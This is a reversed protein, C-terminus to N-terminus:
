FLEFNKKIMLYNKEIITNLALISYFKNKSLIIEEYYNKLAKENKNNSLLIGAKVYKESIM